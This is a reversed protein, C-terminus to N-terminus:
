PKPLFKWGPGAGKSYTVMRKHLYKLNSYFTAPKETHPKLSTIKWPPTMQLFYKTRHDNKISTSHFYRWKSAFMKSNQLKFYMREKRFSIM